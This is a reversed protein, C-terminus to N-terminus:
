LKIVGGGDCNSCCEENYDSGIGMWVRESGKGKCTKCVRDEYISFSHSLRNDICLSCLHKSEGFYTIFYYHIRAYSSEIKKQCDDCYYEETTQKM